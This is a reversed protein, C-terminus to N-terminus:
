VTVSRVVAGAQLIKVAARVVHEDDYTTESRVTYSYPHEDTPRRSDALARRGIRPRIGQPQVCDEHGAM